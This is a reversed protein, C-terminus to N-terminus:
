RRGSVRGSARGRVGREGKREERRQMGQKKQKDNGNQQQASALIAEVERMSGKM